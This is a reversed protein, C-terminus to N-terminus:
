RELRQGDVDLAVQAGREGPDPLGRLPQSLLHRLQPDAHPGPVGAGGVPAPQDGSRGVDQDGGGLRQEQHQGALSALRESADLGHDDVLHVGDGTGLAAGVEGDAELSEVGQELLRGLPDAEAGRNPRQLLHRPEEAALRRDVDHRRGRLLPPVELDDYGDLVHRRRLLVVVFLAAVRGAALRDPGVDLLVDGVQDALVAGRDDEGVGTPEGLAERGPEVLDRALPELGVVLRRRLDHRLGPDGVPRARHDRLRVVPRHGLLLSRQDLVVELASPKGAHHGGAAELEADVHARDVQHDLDLRRGADRARQLPHAPGSVLHTLGAAPHQEGLM